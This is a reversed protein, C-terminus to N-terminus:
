KADQSLIKNALLLFDFVASAKPDTENFQLELSSEGEVVPAEPDVTAKLDKVSIGNPLEFTLFACAVAKLDIEKEKPFAVTCGSNTLDRIIGTLSGVGPPPATSDRSSLVVNVSVDLAVRLGKRASIEQIENPYGLFLYNFPQTMVHVVHSKFAYTRGDVMGRCVVAADKPLLALEGQVVPHEIVVFEGESWGIIRSSLKRKDLYGILQISSGVPLLPCGEERLFDLPKWVVNIKNYRAFFSLYLEGGQRM